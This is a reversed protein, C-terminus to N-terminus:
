CKIPKLYQLSHTKYHLCHMLQITYCTHCCVRHSMLSVSTHKFRKIPDTTEIRTLFIAHETNYGKIEVNLWCWITAFVNLPTDGDM